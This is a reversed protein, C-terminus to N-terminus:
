TRFTLVCFCTLFANCVLFKLVRKLKVMLLCDMAFFACSLWGWRNVLKFMQSSMFLFRELTKCKSLAKWRFHFDMGAIIQRGGSLIFMYVGAASPKLVNTQYLKSAM